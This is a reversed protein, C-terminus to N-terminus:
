ILRVAEEAGASRSTPQDDFGPTCTQIALQDDTLTGTKGGTLPVRQRLRLINM